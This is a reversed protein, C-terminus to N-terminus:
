VNQKWLSHSREGVEVGNLLRALEEHGCVM